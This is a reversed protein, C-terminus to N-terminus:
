VAESATQVPDKRNAIGVLMKHIGARIILITNLFLFANLIKSCKGYKNIVIAPAPTHSAM